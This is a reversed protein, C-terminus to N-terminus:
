VSGGPPIALLVFNRVQGAENPLDFAGFARREGKREKVVFEVHSPQSKEVSLLDFGGVENRFGMQGEASKDPEYRQYYADMKAAEGSNFADLWTRLVRGAPTNPVAAQGAQTAQARLPSFATTVALAAIVLRM